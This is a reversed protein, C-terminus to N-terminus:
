NKQLLFCNRLIQACLIRKKQLKLYFLFKLTIKELTWSSLHTEKKTNEISVDMNAVKVFKAHRYNLCRFFKYAM